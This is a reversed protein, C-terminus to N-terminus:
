QIVGEKYDDPFVDHRRFVHCETGRGLHRALDIACDVMYPGDRFNDFKQAFNFAACYMPQGMSNNGCYFGMVPDYIVAVAWYDSHFPTNRAVIYGKPEVAGNM